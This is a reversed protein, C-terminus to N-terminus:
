QEVRERQTCLGSHSLMIGRIFPEMPCYRFFPAMWSVKLRSTYVPEIGDWGDDYFKPWRESPNLDYRRFARAQAVFLSTCCLLLVAGATLSCRRAPM